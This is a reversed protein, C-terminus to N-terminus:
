YGLMKELLNDAKNIKSKVEDQMLEDICRVSLEKAEEM